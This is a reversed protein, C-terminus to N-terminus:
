LETEVQCPLHKVGRGGRRASMRQPGSGVGGEVRLRRRPYVGREIKLLLRGRRGVRESM